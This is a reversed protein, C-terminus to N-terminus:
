VHRLEEGLIVVFTKKDFVIKRYTYERYIHLLSIAAPVTDESLTAASVPFFVPRRYVRQLDRLRKLADSFRIVPEIVEDCTLGDATTFRRILAVKRSLLKKRQKPTLRKM